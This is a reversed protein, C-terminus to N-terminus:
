HTGERIAQFIIGEYYAHNYVLTPDFVVRQQVGFAKLYGALTRLDSIM